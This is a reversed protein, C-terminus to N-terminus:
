NIRSLLEILGVFKGTMENKWSIESMKWELSVWEEESKVEELSDWGEITRQIESM